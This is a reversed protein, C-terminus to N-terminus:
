KVFPNYISWTGMCDQFGYRGWQASGVRHLYRSTIPKEIEEFFQKTEEQDEKSKEPFSSWIADFDLRKWKKLQCENLHNELAQSQCNHNKGDHFWEYGHALILFMDQHPTSLSKIDSELLLTNIMEDLMHSMHALNGASLILGCTMDRKHPVPPITAWEEATYGDNDGYMAGFPGNEHSLTQPAINM